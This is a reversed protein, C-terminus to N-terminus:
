RTNHQTTNHQITNHQHGDVSYICRVGYWVGCRATSRHVAARMGCVEAVDRCRRPLTASPPSLETCKSCYLLAHSCHLLAPSCHLLVAGCLGRPVAGCWLELCPHRDAYIDLQRGHVAFTETHSREETAIQM